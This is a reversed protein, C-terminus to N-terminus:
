KSPLQVGFPLEVTLVASKTDSPFSLRGAAMSGLPSSPKVQTTATGAQPPPLTVTPSPPSPTTVIASQIGTSPRAMQLPTIGREEVEGQPAAAADGTNVLEQTPTPVVSTDQPRETSQQNPSLPSEEDLGRSLVGVQMSATVKGSIPPRTSVTITVQGASGPASKPRLSFSGVTSGGPITFSPPLPVLDPNSSYLYLVRGKPPAPGEMTVTGTTSAGARVSTNSLALSLLLNPSIQFLLSRKTEGQSSSSPTVSLTLQYAAPPLSLFTVSSNSSSDFWGSTCPQAAYICPNRIETPQSGLGISSGGPLSVSSSTTNTQDNLTWRYQLSPTLEPKVGGARWSIQLPTGEPVIINSSPKFQVRYGQTDAPLSGCVIHVRDVYVGSRGELAVGVRSWVRPERHVNTGVQPRDCYDQEAQVKLPDPDGYYDILRTGEIATAFQGKSIGIDVCKIDISGVVPAGGFYNVSGELGWLAQGVPCRKNFPSGGNGGYHATEYAGGVWVGSIPDIKVCLGAIQDIVVGSRGRIGILLGSEGCDLHFPVGGPGGIGDYPALKASAPPILSGVGMLTTLFIVILSVSHAYRM